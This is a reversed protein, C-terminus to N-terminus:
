NSSIKWLHDGVYHLNKIVKGSDKERMEHDDFLAQGIAIPKQNKQDIISVFDGKKIGEEVAVIGPRMIDAGDAVFKIAGMDVTIKKLFNEKLLQKLTPILFEGQYFFAPEDDLMLLRPETRYTVKAKKEFFDKVGYQKQLDQNIQKIDSKSLQKKMIVLKLYM